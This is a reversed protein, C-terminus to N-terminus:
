EKAEFSVRPDVAAYLVDSLLLSVLTLLADITALGM